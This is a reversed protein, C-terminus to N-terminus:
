PIIGDLRSEPLKADVKAKYANTNLGFQAIFRDLWGQTPMRKSVSEHVVEGTFNPTDKLGIPIVHWDSGPACIAAFHSQPDDPNGIALIRGEDNTLLSLAALWLPKPIGCAEDLIVLLYDAHTGQFDAVTDDPGAKAPDKPKRGFAVMTDGIWWETTNMRGPLNGKAHTTALEGWLISKVQYFTPASTLVKATGPPHIAIWWAAIRAAVFTKGPGHCAPVATQANDRVSEMIEVQKSWLHEGLVDGVWSAPDDLYPDPHPDIIDAAVDWASRATSM